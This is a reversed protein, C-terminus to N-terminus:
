AEARKELAAELLATYGKDKIDKGLWLREQEIGQALFMTLGSIARAGRARAAKLLKTELPSYVLDFVAAGSRIIGEPVPSADINPAMGIPTANVIVDFPTAGLADEAIITGGFSARLSEAQDRDRNLCFVNAGERGALYAVTRAAGGAGVLLVNAGKLAVGTLAEKIGVVDTNYGTLVGERNVVTNVAGIEQATGDIKDLLPMITQKHPMTVAALYIPLTRMAAILGSIDPSGFALMVADVNEEKYIANHLVPSLSHEVPLGMIAALKTKPSIAM